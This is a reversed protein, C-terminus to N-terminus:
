AALLLGEELCGVGVSGLSYSSSSVGSGKPLGSFILSM